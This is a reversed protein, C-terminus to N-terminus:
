RQRGLNGCHGRERPVRGPGTGPEAGLERPMDRETDAQSLVICAASQGQPRTDSSSGARPLEWTGSGPSSRSGETSPVAQLCQRGAKLAPTQRESKQEETAHTRPYKTHKLSLINEILMRLVSPKRLKKSIGSQYFFNWDLPIAKLKPSLEPQSEGARKLIRRQSNFWRCLVKTKLM